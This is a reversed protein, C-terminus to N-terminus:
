VKNLIVTGNVPVNQILVMNKLIIDINEVQNGLCDFVVCNYEGESHVDILMNQDMSSNFIIIEDTLQEIYAIRGSYVAGVQTKKDRASVYLYNNAYGKYLMEGFLITNKYTSWLKLYRRLMDGQKNTIVDKRISIQPVSFLTRTLQFAAMDAPEENNFMIMDSHVATKGSTMRLSLTNMCNSWSDNPCDFSRIMNGFTRMLPGVYSQRFEILIDPKLEKLEKTVDNLLREVADYVSIYDMGKKFVDSQKFADIFDLKFGDLGWDLVAKKYLGILYQRIEPYRPDVIYTKGNSEERQCLMKEKFNAYADSYIGVYPVSYWLVFKMGINHVKDVFSKMDPIKSHVPIWDGCYDYGRETNDTQWGDDVIVTKCGLEAFKKCEELIDDVVLNQHFSYWTSYVPMYSYKSISAPVYGVSDEWWVRVDDIAKYFPIYRSDIRIDSEYNSVPYDVSIDVRCELNGSEEIVGTRINVTNKVDSCAITQKNQDDYSVNSFIPASSMACSKEFGGWNPVVEKNKYNIPSWTAHIGIDPIQWIVSLQLKLKELNTDAFIHLISIEKDLMEEQISVAFGDTNKVTYKM